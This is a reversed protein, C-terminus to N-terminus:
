RFLSFLWLFKKMVLDGRFFTGSMPISSPAAQMGLPGAESRAVAGLGLEDSDKSSATMKNTKDHPPENVHQNSSNQKEAM